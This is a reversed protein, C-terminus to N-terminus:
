MERKWADALEKREQDDYYNWMEGAVGRRLPGPPLTKAWAATDAHDFECWTRVLTELMEGTPAETQSVLWNWREKATRENCLRAVEFSLSKSGAQWKPVSEALHTLQAFTFREALPAVFQDMSPCNGQSADHLSRFFGVREDQTKLARAVESSVSYSEGSQGGSDDPYQLLGRINESSPDLIATAAAVWRGSRGALAPKLEKDRVWNLMARPDKRVWAKFGRDVTRRCEKEASWPHSQISHFLGEPNAAALAWLFSYLGEMKDIMEDTMPEGDTWIELAGQVQEASLSALSNASIALRADLDRMRFIDGRQTAKGEACESKLSRLSAAYDKFEEDPMGNTEIPVVSRDSPESADIFPPASSEVTHAELSKLESLRTRQWLFVALFLAGISIVFSRIM